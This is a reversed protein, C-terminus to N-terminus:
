PGDPFGVAFISALLLVVTVLTIHLSARNV